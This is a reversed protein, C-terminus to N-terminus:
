YCKKKDLLGDLASKKEEAGRKLVTSRSILNQLKTVNSKNEVEFVHSDAAVRM